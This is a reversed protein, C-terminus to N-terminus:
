AYTVWEAHAPRELHAISNFSLLVHRSSSFSFETLASNRIRLNLEIVADPALGLVLGVAHAIPGGSTVMLVHGDHTARVHDLAAAIGAVFDTHRPMGEPEIRGAMWAQLGRRLIRFHERVLDPSSPAPLPEPHVARVLAESDYENLGPWPQAAPSAGLGETIGDLSQLHRRLTGHMAADFHVGRERLHEGLRVCQRRGLASLQDYDAAGFSAQGHRVLHLTGM